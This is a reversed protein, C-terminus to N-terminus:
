PYCADYAEAKSLEWDLIEDQDVSDNYAEMDGEEFCRPKVTLRGKPRGKCAGWSNEYFCGENCM